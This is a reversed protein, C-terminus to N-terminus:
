AGILHQAQAVANTGTLYIYIKMQIFTNNGKYTQAAALACCSVQRHLPQLTHLRRAREQEPKPQRPNPPSAPISLRAQAPIAVVTSGPVWGRSGLRAGLGPELVPSLSKRSM